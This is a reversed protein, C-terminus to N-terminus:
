RPDVTEVRVVGNDIGTVRVIVEHDDDYSKLVQRTAPKNQIKAQALIFDKTFEDMDVVSNSLSQRLKEGSLTRLTIGIGTDLSNAGEKLLKRAGEKNEHTLMLGEKSLLATGYKSLALPKNLPIDFQAHKCANHVFLDTGIKELDNWSFGINIVKEHRIRQMITKVILDSLRPNMQRLEIMFAVYANLTMADDSDALLYTALMNVNSTLQQRGQEDAYIPRESLDRLLDSIRERFLNITTAYFTDKEGKEDCDRLYGQLKAFNDDIYEKKLDLWIPTKEM